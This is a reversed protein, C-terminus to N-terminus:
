VELEEHPHAPRREDTGATCRPEPHRSGPHRLEPCSLGDLLISVIDAAALTRGGSIKPHTASFMLLRLVHTFEEVPVSLRDADAGILEVMAADVRDNMETAGPRQPGDESRAPPGTLGLADILAFVRSVRKQLVATMAVLRERLPLSRDVGALLRLAPAPDFAAETVACMLAEKDPFVRFITGEAVGAAEAIQRTSVAAGHEIVLPLTAAVIAARRAAPAMRTARGTRTEIGVAGFIILACENTCVPEGPASV